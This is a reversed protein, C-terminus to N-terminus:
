DDSAISRLKALAKNLLRSVQVQSVGIAKAIESQTKDDFYRMYIISRERDNLKSILEGTLLKDILEDDGSAAITDLLLRNGGSDEYVPEYISIPSRVAELAHVIEEPDLETQEAIESIHPERGLSKKLSESARYIKLANEKLSRSVKIIGDDRLFRKIEGSIMPVAYTSFRVGFQADYGDIAKILGISGIQMLDDYEAGRGLYGRVISGVLAMNRVVLEERASDDGHQALAILQMTEEHTLLESM